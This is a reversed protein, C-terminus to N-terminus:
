LRNPTPSLDPHLVAFYPDAGQLWPMLQHLYADLVVHMYPVESACLWRITM